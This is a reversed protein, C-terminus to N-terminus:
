DQKYSTGPYSTDPILYGPALVKGNLCIDNVIPQMDLVNKWLIHRWNGIGKNLYINIGQM